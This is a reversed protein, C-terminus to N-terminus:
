GEPIEEDLEGFEGLDMIFQKVTTPHIAEKRFQKQIAYNLMAWKVVHFKGTEVQLNSKQPFVVISYIPLDPYNNEM